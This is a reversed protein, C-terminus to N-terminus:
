NKRRAIAILSVPGWPLAADIRRWLWVFRDFWRLARRSLSGSKLVQGSFRWGPMSVRNFGLMKEVEFGNNALLWSLQAETYRRYHGVARDIAGFAEPDGPVLLILRGNERLLTRMRILAGADDQIHELVNLCVVTDVSERFPEFDGDVSADLKAVRVVPRHRFLMRLREIHEADAETAIYLKRRACLQRTMNGTGAGIELVMRGVWPAITDAMWRNFKPAFSLADLNAAASDTYLKNTFRARAIAWLAEIADRKGIKKGEEYTRGHYSIPTEYIRAGRRAFKITLEPDIGFRDSELPITRAFATRFAKYCTEIDTLNVDAAINCLTTLIHNALSHWYYLVRREGAVLFRSGYVVDANGDLLPGLLKPYERPDYELDADQIISYHGTAAQIAVRIAAAKGRNKEQRFLKIPVGPCSAIFEEIIEASGDNSADDVVILEREMGNPLPAAVVRELLERVYEEENYVPILISLSGSNM